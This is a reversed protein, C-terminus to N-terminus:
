FKKYLSQSSVNDMLPAHGNPTPSNRCCSEARCYFTIPNISSWQQEFLNIVWQNGVCRKLIFCQSDFSNTTFHPNESIFILEFLINFYSLNIQLFYNRFCNYLINSNTIFVSELTLDEKEWRQLWFFATPM